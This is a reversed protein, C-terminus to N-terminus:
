GGALAELLRPRPRDARGAAPRPFERAIAERIAEHARVPSDFPGASVERGGKRVWGVFGGDGDREVWKPLVDPVDAGTRAMRALVARLARWVGLATAPHGRLELILARKVRGATAEDYLGCNVSGDGPVWPRVQYLDGKVKRLYMGCEHRRERLKRRPQPAPPLLEPPILDLLTLRV